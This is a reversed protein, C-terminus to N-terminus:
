TLGNVIAESLLLKYGGKRYPLKWSRSLRENENWLVNDQKSHPSCWCMIRAHMSWKRGLCSKVSDLMRNSPTADQTADYGSCAYTSWSTSWGTKFPKLSISHHKEHTNKRNSTSTERKYWSVVQKIVALDSPGRRQLSGAFGETIKLQTLKQTRLFIFNWKM